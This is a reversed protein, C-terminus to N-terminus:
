CIEGLLVGSVAPKVVVTVMRAFAGKTFQPLYSINNVTSWYM